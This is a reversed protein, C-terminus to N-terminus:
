KKPSVMRGLFLICGTHKDRILFVFPKDARFTPTFPSRQTASSGPGMVVATAAAAETGKEDVEVFAKHVVLASICGRTPTRARRVDRRFRRRQPRGGSECVGAGDGDGEAHREHQLRNGTKFKPMFVNVARKQLKGVWGQVNASTLSKELAPLGDAAQPVIVVMSLDDGKYPMELMTFGHGDPYLQPSKGPEIERPTDFFTGDGNFAAYSASGLDDHRMMPVRAKAATPWCSTTRRADAGKHFVEAWEGKFYIANTLVLRTLPDVSGPPLLDKIRQRTQEEVWANIRLRTPEPQNRFDVPFAGGDAYISAFRRWTRRSSPIPRKAGSHMPWTCSTSTSRPLLKNLEDALKNAKWAAEDAEMM